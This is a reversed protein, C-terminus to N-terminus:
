SVDLEYFPVTQRPAEGQGSGPVVVPQYERLLEVRTVDGGVDRAVYRAADEWIASYDDARVREDYKQWRYTSYPAVAKGVEPPQWIRTTGDALTVRALFGVTFARPNPAFVSWDQDLGLPVLLPAIQERAEQRPRGDPLNWLAIAGMTVVMVVTLLARGVASREFDVGM